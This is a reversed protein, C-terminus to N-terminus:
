LKGCTHFLPFSYRQWVNSCHNIQLYKLFYKGEGLQSVRQSFTFLSFFPPIDFTLSSFLYFLFLSTLPLITLIIFPPFYLRFPNCPLIDPDQPPPPYIDGVLLSSTGM